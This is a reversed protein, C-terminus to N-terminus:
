GWFWPYFWGMQTSQGQKMDRGRKPPFCVEQQSATFVFESTMGILYCLILIDFLKEAIILGIGIALWAFLLIKDKDIM